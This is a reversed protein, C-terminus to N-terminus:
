FKLAALIAKWVAGNNKECQGNGACNYSTKRSTAVRLSNLWEKLEESQFSLFRDSHIYSCMGFISFLQTLSVIIITKTTVEHILGLM